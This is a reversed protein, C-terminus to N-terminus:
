TCTSGAPVGHRRRGADRRRVVCATVSRATDFSLDHSADELHQNGAEDIGYLLQLRLLVNTQVAVHSLQHRVHFLRVTADESADGQATNQVGRISRVFTAVAVYLGRTDYPQAFM